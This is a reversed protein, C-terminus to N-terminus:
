DRDFMETALSDKRVAKEEFPARCVPCRLSVSLAYQYQMEEHYEPTKKIHEQICRRHFYHHCGEIYVIDDVMEDDSCIPCAFKRGRYTLLRRFVSRMPGSPLELLIEIFEDNCWAGRHEYEETCHLLLQMVIDFPVRHLMCTVVVPQVIDRAHHIVRTKWAHSWECTKVLALCSIEPRRPVVSVFAIHQGGAVYAHAGCFFIHRVTDDIATTSIGLESENVDWMCLRGDDRGLVVDDQTVSIATLRYSSRYTAQHILDGLEDTCFATNLSTIGYLRGGHRVTRTVNGEVQITHVRVTAQDLVYFEKNIRLITGHLQPTVSQQVPISTALFRKRIRLTPHWVSVVYRNGAVELVWLSDKAMSMDVYELETDIRAEIRAEPINWACLADPCLSWLTNRHTELRLIPNTHSKFLRQNRRVPSAGIAATEAIDGSMFGVYVRTNSATMATVGSESVWTREANVPVDICCALAVSAHDVHLFYPHAARSVASCTKDRLTSIALCHARTYNHPVPEYTIPLQESQRVELGSTTEFCGDGNTYEASAIKMRRGCVHVTRGVMLNAGLESGFWTYNKPTSEDTRWMDERLLCIYCEIMTKPFPRDACWCEIEQLEDPLSMSTGHRLTSVKVSPRTGMVVAVKNRPIRIYQGPMLTAVKKVKWHGSEERPMDLPGSAHACHSLVREYVRCVHHSPPLDYSKRYAQLMRIFVCVFGARLWRGVADGALCLIADPSAEDRRIVEFFDTGREAATIELLVPRCRTRGHHFWCWEKVSMDLTHLPLHELLCLVNPNWEYNEAALQLYRRCRDLWHSRLSNRSFQDCIEAFPLEDLCMALIEGWICDRLAADRLWETPFEYKVLRSMWIDTTLTLLQRSTEGHWQFQTDLPLTPAKIWEYCEKSWELQDDGFRMECRSTDTVVWCRRHVSNFVGHVPANMHLTNLGTGDKASFLLVMPGRAGVIIDKLMCVHRLRADRSFTIKGSFVDVVSFATDTCVCATKENNVSIIRLADSAIRIHHHNDWAATYWISLCGSNDGTLCTDGVPSSQVVTVRTTHKILPRISGKDMDMVHMRTLTWFVVFPTRYIMCWGEIVRTGTDYSRRHPTLQCLRTTQEKKESAVLARRSTDFAYAEFTGTATSAILEVGNPRLVRLKGYKSVAFLGQNILTDGEVRAVQSKQCHELSITPVIEAELLATGNALRASAGELESISDVDFNNHDRFFVRQGIFM